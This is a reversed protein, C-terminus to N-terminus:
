LLLLKFVGGEVVLGRFMTKGLLLDVRKVGDQREANQLQPNGLAKCRRAFAKAIAAKDGEPFRQWEAGSIRWMMMRYVGQLVDGLALGRSGDGITIPWYPMSDCIITMRQIHPHTAPGSLENMGLPVKMGMNDVRIPNFAAMSLDFWLYGAQAYGTLWPNIQLQTPLQQNQQYLNYLSPDYFQNGHTSAQGGIGGFSNTRQRAGLPQNLFPHDPGNWSPRRQRPPVWGAAPDYFVEPGAGPTAPFPVPGLLPSGGPLPINPAYPSPTGPFLAPSPIFPSNQAAAASFPDFFPMYSSAAPTYTFRGAM